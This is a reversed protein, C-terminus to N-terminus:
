PQERYWLFSTFSAADKQAEPIGMLLVHLPFFMIYFAPIAWWSVLLRLLVIRM